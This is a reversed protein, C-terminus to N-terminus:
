RVMLWFNRLSFSVLMFLTRVVPDTTTTQAQGDRMTQFGIEISLSKQCKSTKQGAIPCTVRRTPVSSCLTSGEYMMFETRYSISTGLKEAMRKGRRIAPLLVPATERSERISTEDYFRAGYPHVM